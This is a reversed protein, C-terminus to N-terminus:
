EKGQLMSDILAGLYMEIADLEREIVPIPHPFDDILQPCTKNVQIATVHSQKTSPRARPRIKAAEADRLRPQAVRRRSQGSDGRWRRPEPINRDTPHPAAKRGM